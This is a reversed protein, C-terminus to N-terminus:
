PHLWYHEEIIEFANGFSCATNVIKETLYGHPLFTALMHLFDQCDDKMALATRKLGAQEVDFGYNLEQPNWAVDSAIFIRYHDDQKIYQRFQMRWQQLSQCTEKSELRRPEKMRIHTTQSTM